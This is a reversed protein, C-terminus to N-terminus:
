PCQIPWRAKPVGVAPNNRGASAVVRPKIRLTPGGFNKLVREPYRTVITTIGGRQVAAETVAVGGRDFRYCNTVTTNAPLAKVLAIWASDAGMISEFISTASVARLRASPKLARDDLPAPDLFYLVTDGRIVESAGVYPASRVKPRAQQLASFRVDLTVNALESIVSNSPTHDSVLANGHTTPGCALLFTLGAAAIKLQATDRSGTIIPGVVRVGLSFRM